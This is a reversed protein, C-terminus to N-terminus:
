SCRNFPILSCLHRHYGKRIVRRYYPVMCCLMSSSSCIISWSAQSHLRTQNGCFGCSLMTHTYAIGMIDRCCDGKPLPNAQTIAVILNPITYWWDFLGSSTTVLPPPSPALQGGQPSPASELELCSISVAVPRSAPPCQQGPSLPCVSLLAAVWLCPHSGM